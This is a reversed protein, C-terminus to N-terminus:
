HLGEEVIKNLIWIVSYRIVRLRLFRYKESRCLNLKVKMINALRVLLEKQLFRYSTTVTGERGFDMYAQLSIPQPHFYGYYNLKDVFKQSLTRLLPRTLRM